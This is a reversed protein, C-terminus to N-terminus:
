DSRAKHLKKWRTRTVRAEELFKDLGIESTMKQNQAQKHPCYHDLRGEYM